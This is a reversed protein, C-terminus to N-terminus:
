VVPDDFESVTLANSSSLSSGPPNLRLCPNGCQNPLFCFPLPAEDIADELYALPECSGPAWFRLSATLVGGSSIGELPEEEACVM